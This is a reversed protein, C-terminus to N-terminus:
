GGAVLSRMLLVDDGDHLPCKEFSETVFQDGVRMYIGNYPYYTLLNAATANDPLEIQRENGMYRATITIM